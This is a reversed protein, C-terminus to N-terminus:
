RLAHVAPTDLCKLLADRPVEPTAAPAVYAPISTQAGIEVPAFSAPNLGACAMAAGLLKPPTDYAEYSLRFTGWHVPIAHAVGLRRFIEVADVPGIHSGIAM